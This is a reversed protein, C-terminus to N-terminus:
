NHKPDQPFNAMAAYKGGLSQLIGMWLNESEVFALHKKHDSVIWSQSEIESQLQSSDWGSYGVYFRINSLSITGNEINQQIADFDGSWYLDDKIHLSKPILNGYTHVYHLTDMQVPGGYYVAIKHPFDPILQDVTSDMKKNIIFGATGQSNHETVLVVARKFHPDQMFPESLLYCGKEPSKNKHLVALIDDIM